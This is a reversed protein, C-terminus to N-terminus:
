YGGDDGGKKKFAGVRLGGRNGSVIEAASIVYDGTEIAKDKGAKLLEVSFGSSDSLAKLEKSFYMVGKKKDYVGIYDM